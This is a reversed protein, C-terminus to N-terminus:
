TSYVSFAIEKVGSDVLIFLRVAWKNKSKGIILQPIKPVLNRSIDTDSPFPETHPHSHYVGLIELELSDVWYFASVLGQPDMFYENPNDSINAIPIIQNVTNELGALLGCSEKPAHEEALAILQGVQDQSLRLGPEGVGAM